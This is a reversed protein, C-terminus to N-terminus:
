RRKLPDHGAARGSLILLGEKETAEVDEFRLAGSTCTAVCRPALGALVREECLDCKPAQHRIMTETIVGFPCALVCSGCGTCLEAARKSVTLEDQWMAESPCGEVCAPEICQRCVIPLSVDETVGFNIIPRNHHGCYCAAACSRCEICLDLDLIVRKKIEAM